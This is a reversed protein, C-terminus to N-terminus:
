ERLGYVVIHVDSQLVPMLIASLHKPRVTPMRYVVGEILLDLISRYSCFYMCRLTNKGHRKGSEAEIMGARSENECTPVHVQGLYVSVALEQKEWM